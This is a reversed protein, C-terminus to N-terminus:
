RHDGFYLYCLLNLAFKIICHLAVGFVFGLFFLTWSFTM